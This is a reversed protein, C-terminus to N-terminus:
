EAVGLQVQKETLTANLKEVESTHEEMSERASKV